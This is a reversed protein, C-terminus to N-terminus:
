MLSLLKTSQITGNVKLVLYTTNMNIGTWDVQVLQEGPALTGNFIAKVPTGVVNVLDLSVTTWEDLTLVLGDDTRVIPISNDGHYGNDRTAATDSASSDSLVISSAPWEPTDGYIRNGLSDFVCIGYAEAMAGSLGAHGPDDAANWINAWESLHLSFNVPDGMVNGAGISGECHVSVQWRGSGLSEMDATSCSALHNIDLIPALGEEVYFYYRVDFNRLAVSGLNEM